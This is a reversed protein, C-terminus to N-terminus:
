DKDIYFGFKNLFKFLDRNVIVFIGAFFCPIDSKIHQLVVIIGGLENQNLNKGIGICNCEMFSGRM